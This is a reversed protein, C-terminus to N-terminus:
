ACAAIVAFEVLNSSRPVAEVYGMTPWHAADDGIWELWAREVEFELQILQLNATVSILQSRNTGLELLVRDVEALAAKSQRYVDPDNSPDTAIVWAIGGFKTGASRGPRNGRARIIGRMDMGGFLDLM